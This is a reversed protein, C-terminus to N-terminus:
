EDKLAEMREMVMEVAEDTMPAGCYGCFNLFNDPSQKGCKSCYRDDYECRDDITTTRQEGMDDVGTVRRFGGRHRHKAVWEGRIREVQERSVPHLATLATAAQVVICDEGECLYDCAFHGSGCVVSLHQENWAELREILKEINMGGGTKPQYAGYPWTLGSGTRCDDYKTCSECKM